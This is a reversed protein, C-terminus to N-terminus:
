QILLALITCVYAHAHMCVLCHCDARQRRLHCCAAGYYLGFLCFVGFMGILVLLLVLLALLGLLGLLLQSQNSPNSVVSTEQFRKTFPIVMEGQKLKLPVSNNVM